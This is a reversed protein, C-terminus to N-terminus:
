HKNRLKDINMMAKRIDELSKRRNEISDFENEKKSKRKSSSVSNDKDTDGAANKSKKTVSISSDEEYSVFGLNDLLEKFFEAKKADVSVKFSRMIRNKVM